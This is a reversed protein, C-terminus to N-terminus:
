PTDGIPRIMAPQRRLDHHPRRHDRATGRRDLHGSNAISAVRVDRAGLAKLGAERQAVAPLAVTSPACGALALVINLKM